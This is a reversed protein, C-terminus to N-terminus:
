AIVSGYKRLADPRITVGLGPVNRLPVYGDQVAEGAGGTLSTRMERDQVADPDPIHQIFFNPLSAALHLAAATTVPGANHGPAVAVYYVEALAAIKRVGTIGHVALDPRIVDVADERLLNQFYSADAAGAGLGIPIVNEDALKRLAGLSATNCPEDFWLLYTRELATALAAADGPALRGSGLLILDCGDGGAARLAEARQRIALVLAQGSNRFPAQHAPFAFTRHGAAKSRELAAVLEDDRAGVLSTFVRVKNRTPGGLLQYLPAQALRALIDLAAVNVAAAGAQGDLRVRLREYSAASAGLVHQRLSAVDERTLPRSEGWGELGDDTVLRVLSWARIGGPEKLNWAELSKIVQVHSGGATLAQEAQFARLRV